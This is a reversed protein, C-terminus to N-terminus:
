VREFPYFPHAPVYAMTHSPTCVKASAHGVSVYVGFLLLVAVGKWYYIIGNIYSCYSLWEYPPPCIEFIKQTNSTVTRSVGRDSM